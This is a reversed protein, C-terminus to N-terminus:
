IENWFDFFLQDKNIKKNWSSYKCWIICQFFGVPMDYKDAMIKLYQEYLLYKGKSLGGKRVKNYNIDYGQEKLFRLIWVDIVAINWYGLINLFLSAIKYGFGKIEKVLKDRFYYGKDKFGNCNSIIDFFLKEIIQWDNCLYLIHKEINKSFRTKYIIARFLDKNDLIASPSNFNNEMLLHFINKQTKYLQGTSLISYIAAKFLNSLTYRKVKDLRYYRKAEQIDKQTIIFNNM